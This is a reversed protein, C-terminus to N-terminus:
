AGRKDWTRMQDALPLDSDFTDTRTPMYRAHAPTMPHSKSAPLKEIGEIQRILDNRKVFGSVADFSLDLSPIQKRLSDAQTVSIKRDVVLASIRHDLSDRATRDLRQVLGVTHASYRPTMSMSLIPPQDGETAMAPDTRMGPAPANPENELIELLAEVLNDRTTGEPLLIGKQALMDMLAPMSQDDDDMEPEVPAAPDVFDDGPAGPAAANDPEYDDMSLSLSLQGNPMRYPEQAHQVPQPTLAIHMISAGPWTKGDPTQANWVIRPSVFGVKQLDSLKEGDRPTANFELRGARVRYSSVSGFTNRAQDAVLDARNKPVPGYNQHEFCVPIHMGDRIMANGNAAANSLDAPTIKWRNGYKNVVGPYLCDKWINNKM